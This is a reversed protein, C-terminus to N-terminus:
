NRSMSTNALEIAQHKLFLNTLVGTLGSCAEKLDEDSFTGVDHNIAVPSVIPSKPPDLSETNSTIVDQDFNNAEAVMQQIEENAVMSQFMSNGLMNNQAIVNQHIMDHHVMALLFTQEEEDLVDVNEPLVDPAMEPDRTLKFMIARKKQMFIARTQVYHCQEAETMQRYMLVPIAVLSVQAM